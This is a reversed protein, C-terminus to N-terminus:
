RNAIKDSIFYSFESKKMHILEDIDFEFLPSDHYWREYYKIKGDKMKLSPSENQLTYSSMYIDILNEIDDLTEITDRADLTKYEGNIMCIEKKNKADYCIREVSKHTEWGNKRWGNRECIISLFCINEPTNNLFSSLKEITDISEVEKATKKDFVEKLEM